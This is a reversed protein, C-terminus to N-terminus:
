NHREPSLASLLAKRRARPLETGGFRADLYSRVAKSLAPSAPHGQAALRKALEELPEFSAREIKAHEVAHELEDYFSSAPHRRPGRRLWRRAVFYAVIAVAIAALWARLPPLAVKAETTDETAQTQPRILRRVFLYQDQISYDVVRSRWWGEIQEYLATAMAWLALPQGLRGADPTADLMVWGKGSIFAQVWAHADGARLVYADNIRQGGYFGAVVRAPVKQVRLMVALATAFHECHGAKRNFLFDALPDSVDGPLELTYAYERKLARELQRAVAHPETEEGALQRALSSVRPDLNAPLALYKPDVETLAQDSNGSSASSAQYTYSVGPTAFRVEEGAVKVLSTPVTGSTQSVQGRSFSIPRDLAILTRAEYAPLLEIRQLITGRGAEALFVVPAPKKEVGSGRWERGDFLDFTRGPWYALMSDGTPDPSLSIRAVVRASTKISGGGGLRVRDSMGTTGGLVGPTVRRAAMNWSVRPFVIFFILGGMLALVVGLSLQKLVPPVPLEQDLEEPGEIAALGLHLCSFVGFALLCAGFWLEGTLAAGGATLLLSSLLVQRDTTLSVESVLRHATVLVAFSVSAIILDLAGMLALGFLLAAAFLLAVVSWIRRGELPRYGMVSFGLAIIFTVLAWAPLVGSLSVGVFASFAAADRFRQRLRRRQSLHM